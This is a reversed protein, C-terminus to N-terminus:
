NICQVSAGTCFKVYTAGGSGGYGSGACPASGTTGNTAFNVCSNSSGITGLNYPSACSGQAFSLTRM